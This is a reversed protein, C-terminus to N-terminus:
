RAADDGADDGSCDGADRWEDGQLRLGAFILALVYGACALGCVSAPWGALRRWGAFLFLGPLAVM